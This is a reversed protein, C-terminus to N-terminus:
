EMDVDDQDSWYDFPEPLQAEEGGEEDEDVATLIAAAGDPVHEERETNTASSTNASASDPVARAPAKKVQRELLSKPETPENDLLLM